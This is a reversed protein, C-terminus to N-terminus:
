KAPTSVKLSSILLLLKSCRLSADSQKRVLVQIANTQENTVQSNMQVIHNYLVRVFLDRFNSAMEVAENSLGINEALPTNILLGGLTRSVTPFSLLQL